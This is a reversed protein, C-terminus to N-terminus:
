CRLNSEIAVSFLKDIFVNGLTYLILSRISVLFKRISLAAKKECNHSTVSSQVGLLDIIRIAALNRSSNWTNLDRWDRCHKFAAIGIGSAFITIGSIRGRSEVPISDSYRSICAPMGIGLSVGLLLGILSVQGIDSPNILLIAISSLTGLIMWLIIFNRHEIKKSIFTGAIASIILGGFHLGWIVIISFQSADSIKPVITQLFFSLVVYYWVFRRVVLLLFM